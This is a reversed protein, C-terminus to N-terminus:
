STGPSTGEIARRAESGLRDRLHADGLLRCINEALTEPAKALVLIGNAGDQLCRARRQGSDFCGSQRM